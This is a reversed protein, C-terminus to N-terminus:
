RGVCRVAFAANGHSYSDVSGGFGYFLWSSYRYYSHDSTSWFDHNALGPLIETKGDALYPSSDFGAGQGLYMALQEFEEGTPLQAGISRCYKEADQENMYKINGERTKVVSGWILGSPDKYAEGLAPNSTDRTFVAGTISVRQIESGGTLNQLNLQAQSIVGLCDQATSCTSQQAFAVPTVILIAYLVVLSQRM